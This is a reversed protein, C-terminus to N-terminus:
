SVGSIIKYLGKKGSLSTFAVSIVVQKFGTSDGLIGKKVTDPLNNKAICMPIYSYSATIDSNKGTKQSLHPAVGGQVVESAELASFVKNLAAIRARSDYELSIIQVTFKAFVLVMVSLVGVSVLLEFIFFGSKHGFVLSLKKISM